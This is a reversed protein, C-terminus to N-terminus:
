WSDIKKHAVAPKSAWFGTPLSSPLFPSLFSPLFLPLSPSLAKSHGHDKNTWTEVDPVRHDSITEWNLGAAHPPHLHRPGHHLLCSPPSHQLSAQVVKRRPPPQIQWQGRGWPCISSSGPTHMHTHTNSLRGTLSPPLSTGMQNLSSLM